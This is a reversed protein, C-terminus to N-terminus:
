IGLRKEDRIEMLTTLEDLNAKKIAERFDLEEGTRRCVMNRFRQYDSELLDVISITNCKKYHWNLLQRRLKKHLQEDATLAPAKKAGAGATKKKNLLGTSTIM